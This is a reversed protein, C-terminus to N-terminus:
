LVIRILQRCHLNNEMKLFIIKFNYGVFYTSIFKMKKLMLNEVAYVSKEFCIYAETLFVRLM